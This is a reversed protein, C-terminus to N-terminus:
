SIHGLFQVFIVNAVIVSDVPKSILVKIPDNYMMM